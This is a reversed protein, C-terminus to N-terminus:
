RGRRKGIQVDYRLRARQIHSLPVHHEGDACRLHAAEGDTGLIEGTFKRRGQLPTLLHMQVERGTYTSFDRDSFLPRDLGPSSVRLEYREAVPDVVDIAASVEPTVQACHAITVGEPHDIFVWLIARGHDRGLEVGLLQVGHDEMIPTVADRVTRALPQQAGGIFVLSDPVPASLSLDPSEHEM